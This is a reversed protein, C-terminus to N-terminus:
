YYDDYDSDYRSYRYSRFSNNRCKSFKNCFISETDDVTKMWTYSKNNANKCMLKEMHENCEDKYESYVIYSYSFLVSTMSMIAIIQDICKDTITGKIFGNCLYSDDRRSM